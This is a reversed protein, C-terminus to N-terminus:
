KRPPVGGANFIRGLDIPAMMELAKGNGGLTAASLQQNRGDILWIVANNGGVIEGPIMLYDGPRQAQAEAPQVMPAVLGIALLLNLAGLAWIVKNQM